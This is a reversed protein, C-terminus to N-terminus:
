EPEGFFSWLLVRAKFQWLQTVQAGFSISEPRTWFWPAGMLWLAFAPNLRPRSGRAPSSSTKGDPIKQGQLSFELVAETLPRSNGYDKRTEGSRYDRAQCTPWNETELSLTTKGRNERRGRGGAQEGDMTTVTPWNATQAPLGMGTNSREPKAFDPGGESARPTSWRSAQDQLTVQMKAGTGHLGLQMAEDSRTRSGGTPADPTAWKESQGSLTDREMGPVGHDRTFNGAENSRPTQWNAAEEQLQRGAKECGRQYRNNAGSDMRATATPWCLSEKASTREKLMTRLSLSRNLSSTVWEAYNRESLWSRITSKEAESTGLGELGLQRTRSSCWPPAVSPLSGSVIDLQDAAMELLELITTEPAYDPMVSRRALSARASSISLAVFRPFSSTPLIESGFLIPTWARNKWGRWTCPTPTAKGSRAVYLRQEPFFWNLPKTSYDSGAVCALWPRALKEPILWM